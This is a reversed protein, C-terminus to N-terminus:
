EGLMDWFSNDLERYCEPCRLPSEDYDPFASFDEDFFVYKGASESYRYRRYYDVREFISELELKCFPCIIKGM